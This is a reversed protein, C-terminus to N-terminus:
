TYLNRRAPYRTLRVVVAPVRAIKARESGSRVARLRAGAVGPADGGRALTFHKEVLVAGLAVAAVAAGIGLTHDSLGTEAGFRERMDAVTVVNSDQPSAPYTSTCKLLVIDKCGHSRATKVADAIEDVSAMGTSVIMTRGTQAVREILPLDTIEFSAIKYAPPDFQELFEVATDDFPTSLCEIGRERARAFIPAHWEWPTHAERYLDYLTRGHWLSDPDEIRFGPADLDLTMTDPTYTQLKIAHAGADAAADVLALARELSQNHNGSMEAIILPPLQPGIARSGFKLM